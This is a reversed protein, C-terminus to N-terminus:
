GHPNATVLFARLADADAHSLGSLVVDAGGGTGTYVALTAIGLARALPGEDVDVHQVAERPVAITERWWVGEVVVLQDPLCLWAVADHRWGAVVSVAVLSGSGLMLGLSLTVGWGWTPGWAIVMWTGLPLLTVLARTFGSVQRWGRAAPALRQWRGLIM